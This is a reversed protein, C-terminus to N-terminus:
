PAEPGGTERAIRLDVEHEPPCPNGDVPCTGVLDSTCGPLMAEAAEVCMTCVIEAAPNIEQEEAGCFTTRWSVDRCCVLHTIEDPRAVLKYQVEAWREQDPAAQSRRAPIAMRLLTVLV